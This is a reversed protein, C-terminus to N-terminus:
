LDERPSGSSTNERKEGRRQEFDRRHERWPAALDEKKRKGSSSPGHIGHLRLDRGGGKKAGNETPGEEKGTIQTSRKKFPV